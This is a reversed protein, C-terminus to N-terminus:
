EAEEPPEGGQLKDVLNQSYAIVQILKEVIEEKGDIAYNIKAKEMDAIFRECISVARQIKRVDQIFPDFTSRTELEPTLIYERLTESVVQRQEETEATDIAEMIRRFHIVSKIKKARYKEVLARTIGRRGSHSYLDPLLEKTKELVPYLEIWFNSPVREAPDTELSLDQFEKPFSLIIKCREIQPISLGTIEHLEGTDETNLEKMVEKLSLATPMLEWQERFAHINFM